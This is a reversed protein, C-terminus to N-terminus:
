DCSRKREMRDDCTRGRARRGNPCVTDESLIAGDLADPEMVACTFDADRFVTDEVNVFEFTAGSLNAGSFDSGRLDVSVLTASSFDADRVEIGRADTGEIRASTFDAREGEIRSIDSARFTSEAFSVDHATAGVLNLGSFSAGSCDLGDVSGNRLHLGTFVARSDSFRDSLAIYEEVAMSRTRVNSEPVCGEGACDGYLITLLETRRQLYNRHADAEMQTHLIENSRVLERNQKLMLWNQFILLSLSLVTGVTGFLTIRGIRRLVATAADAVEDPPPVEKSYARHVLRSVSRSVSPGFAIWAGVRAAAGGSKLRKKSRSDLRERLATNEAELERIRQAHVIEEDPTVNSM